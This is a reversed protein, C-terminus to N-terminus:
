AVNGPSESPAILRKIKAYLRDNNIIKTLIEDNDAGEFLEDMLEMIAILVSALREHFMADILEAKTGKYLCGISEYREIRNRLALFIYRVMTITTDAIQADFDNSQSKGLQLHQKCEKFFVEISWRVQYIEITQSFNLTLDTSLITKWKGHKGKRTFYLVVLQGKWSVVVRIYHLGYRKNRKINKRNLQRIEKYTLTKKNYSFNTKVKSFMGIFQMNNEVTTKVLEWCTFWSDTIVYDAYIKNKTASKIMSVASTIKSVDLEKKRQYSPTKKDRKKFFQKRFYKPKLGFKMKKNKGKERHFTFNVPIFMTGDYFGMTLLQYGLVSKKIVHNWIRSVGEILFGTKEIPTDDFIFAKPGVQEQEKNRESVTILTRKLVAFLFNRWNIKPNNKLRYFADKGFDAFKSWKSQTFSLVSNEDLFPFSLLIKILVLISIGKQKVNSFISHHKGLKLIDTLDSFFSEKKHQAVFSSKLESLNKIDKNHLM